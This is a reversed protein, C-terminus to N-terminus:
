ARSSNWSLEFFSKINYNESLYEGSVMCESQLLQFTFTVQSDQEMIWSKQEGIIAVGSTDSNM